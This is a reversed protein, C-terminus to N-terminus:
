LIHHESEIVDCLHTWTGLALTECEITRFLSDYCVIFLTTVEMCRNLHHYIINYVSLAYTMHNLCRYSTDNHVIDDRILNSIYISDNRLLRQTVNDLINNVKYTKSACTCEKITNLVETITHCVESTQGEVKIIDDNWWLLIFENLLTILFYLLNSIVIIHAENGIGLTIILDDICPSM